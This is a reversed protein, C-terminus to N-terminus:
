NSCQSCHVWACRDPNRIRRPSGRSRTDARLPRNRGLAIAEPAGTGWAGILSCSTPQLGRRRRRNLDERANRRVTGVGRAGGAPRAPRGLREADIDARARPATWVVSVSTARRGRSPPRERSPVCSIAPQRSATTTARRWAPATATPARDPARTRMTPISASRSRSGPPVSRQVPRELRAPPARDHAPQKGPSTSRGTTSCGCWWRSAPRAPRCRRAEPRHRRVGRRSACLARPRGRRRRDGDPMPRRVATGDLAFRHKTVRSTRHLGPEDVDGGPHAGANVIIQGGLGDQARVGDM